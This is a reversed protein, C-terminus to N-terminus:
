PWPAATVSGPPHAGGCIFCHVLMWSYIRTRLFLASPTRTRPWFLQTGVPTVRVFQGASAYLPCDTQQHSPVWFMNQLLACHVSKVQVIFFNVSSISTINISRKSYLFEAMEYVIFFILFKVCYSFMCFPCFSILFFPLRVCLCKRRLQLLVSREALNIIPERKKAVVSFHQM